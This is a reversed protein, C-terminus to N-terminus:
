HTVLFNTANTTTVKWWDALIPCCISVKQHTDSLAAKTEEFSEKIKLLQSEIHSYRIDKDLASLSTILRPRYSEISDTGQNAIQRKLAVVEGEKSDPGVNWHSMILSLTCGHHGRPHPLPSFSNVDLSWPEWRLPPLGHESLVHDRKLILSREAVALKDLRVRDSEM